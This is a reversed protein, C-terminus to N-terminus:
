CCCRPDYSLSITAEVGLCDGAPGLPELNSVRWSYGRDEVDCGWISAAVLLAQADRHLLQASAELAALPVEGGDDSLPTCRLLGLGIEAVYMSACGENGAGDPGPFQGMPFSRLWRTYLQGCQCSEAAVDGGNYVARRQPFPDTGNALEEAAAELLFQLEVYLPPTPM